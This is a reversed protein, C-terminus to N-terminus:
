PIPIEAKCDPCTFAVARDQEEDYRAWLRSFHTHGSGFFERQGDTMPEGVLSCGCHPCTKLDALIRLSREPEPNKEPDTV